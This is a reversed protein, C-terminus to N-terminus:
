RASTRMATTTPAPAGAPFFHEYTGNMVKQIDGWVSRWPDAAFESYQGPLNIGPVGPVWDETLLEAPDGYRSALARVEPHDLSTMHGKDVLTVWRNANRLHVRYTTFYTHTHWGHDRPLNWRETFDVLQQSKVPEGPDHHLTVGLGWHFVGSRNREPTAQGIELGAPNRFAKPHTGMAIEYLWWYGPHDPNHFPVVKDNINPFQLFEKLAEGFLGGGKVDKVYGNELSVQWQPYYGTHNTTGAIVGNALAMPERPLWEGQFAPYDVVSYGFRGTAQNPFMYLHGRQYVGRAWNQASAESVESSLNTGEPDTIELRDVHVLPEMSQDEALQWVDGPYTGQKSMVDWRNDVIFLGLFKAEAPRMYRRLSTSGGKGWFAGRIKPNEDLYERIAAGVSEGRMREYIDRQRANMERTKPYLKDYLDPRRKQLWARAAAADPFNADVWNAAEMYGQESTYGRRVKRFAVAEDESVGVLEYDRKIVVNVGREEMAQTVADLIMPEADISVVFLVTEGPEAIGLGAGQLGVRARVLPRVHPLVEDVSSPPRLYSPFRPEMYAGAVPESRSSEQGAGPSEARETRSCAGALVLGALVGATWRTKRRQMSRM